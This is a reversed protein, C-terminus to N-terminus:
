WNSLLKNLLDQVIQDNVETLLTSEVIGLDTDADYDIFRVSNVTRQEEEPEKIFITFKVSVSLRNKAAEDGDQIAVPTISYNTIVGEIDIQTESPDSKLLLRSKNQIGDKVEETLLAAYSLPTNPANNKLTKMSFTEWEEPTTGDIFSISKPWCSTLLVVSLIYFFVRM